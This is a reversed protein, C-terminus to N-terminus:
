PRSPSEKENHAYSHTSSFSKLPLVLDPHDSHHEFLPHTKRPRPLSFFPFLIEAPLAITKNPTLFFKEWPLLRNKYSAM